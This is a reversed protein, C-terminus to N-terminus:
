ASVLVKGKPTGVIWVTAKLCDETYELALFLFRGFALLSHLHKPSSQKYWRVVGKRQVSPVTSINTVFPFIRTHLERRQRRERGRGNPSLDAFEM